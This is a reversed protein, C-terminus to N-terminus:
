IPTVTDCPDQQTTPNFDDPLNSVVRTVSATTTNNQIDNENQQTGVDVVYHEGVTVQTSYQSLDSNPNTTDGVQHLVLTRHAASAQMCVGQPM